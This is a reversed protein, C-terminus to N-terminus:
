GGSLRKLAAVLRPLTEGSPARICLDCLDALESLRPNVEILIGEKQKVILPLNVAPYVVASTGIVLMCDCHEAQENCRSLVDPPIPEGFMVTDGKVIGGCEPCRPPLESLDFGGRPFRTGCEVCRLKHTNGHIELVNRSGAATHLNDINQTILAKLLGMEEMEALAYHGPNPRAESIPTGLSRRRRPKFREEWWRKPDTLFRQYGDMPPEGFRTWLGGPGRFPPIGSEVSVGAGTLAVVYEASLILAAAREIAEELGGEGVEM